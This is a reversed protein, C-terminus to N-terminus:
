GNHPGCKYAYRIKDRAASRPISWRNATDKLDKKEAQYLDLWKKYAECSGHCAVHRDTCGKCPSMGIM